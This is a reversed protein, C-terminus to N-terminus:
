KLYGLARLAKLEKPSLRQERGKAAPRRALEQQLATALRAVEKPQASALNSCERPDRALDYLERRDPSTILKLHGLRVAYARRAALEAVAPREPIPSGRALYSYLSRGSMPPVEELGAAELVTPAIDTSEVLESVRRGGPLGPFRMVLPVRILEQYLAGGHELQDHELFAEGHDATVIIITHEYLGADRLQQLLEGIAHDACRVEGDYLDSMRTVDDRSLAHKALAQDTAAQDVGPDFVLNLEVNVREDEATYGPRGFLCFESPPRYLNHPDIYHLYLFFPKNRFRRRGLWELACRNVDSASGHRWVPLKGIPYDFEEFGRAMGTAPGIIPNACFAATAYGRRHLIEALTPLRTTRAYVEDGRQAWGVGHEHARWGTMLSPLSSATEPAQAMADTFVMGEAALADLHPSTPRSYGYCGLRDARLADVIILVISPRSEELPQDAPPGCGPGTLLTFAVLAALDVLRSICHCVLAKRGATRM